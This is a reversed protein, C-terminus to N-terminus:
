KNPVCFKKQAANEAYQSGNGTSDTSVEMVVYYVKEFQVPM